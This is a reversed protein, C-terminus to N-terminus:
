PMREASPLETAQNRADRKAARVHVQLNSTEHPKLGTLRSTQIVDPGVEGEGVLSAVKM